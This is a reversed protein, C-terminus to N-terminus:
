RLTGCVLALMWYGDGCYPPNPFFFFGSMFDPKKLLFDVFTFISFQVGQVVKAHQHFRVM